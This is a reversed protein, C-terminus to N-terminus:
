VLDNSDNKKRRGLSFIRTHASHSAANNATKWRTWARTTRAAEFAAPGSRAWHRIRGSGRVCSELRTVGIGASGLAPDDRPAWDMSGARRWAAAPPCRPAGVVCRARVRRHGRRRAAASRHKWCDHDVSSSNKLGARAARRHMEEARRWRWLQLVETIEVM